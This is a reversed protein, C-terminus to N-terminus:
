KKGLHRDLFRMVRENPFLGHGATPDVFFEVQVGRDLLRYGLDIVSEMHGQPDAEGITFLTPARWTEIRPSSSVALDEIATRESLPIFETPPSGTGDKKMEIVWDAVGSMHVGVAYDNPLRSLALGVIHGGYSHGIIGIRKPDVDPRGKLYRALAALDKVESGGTAGRGAPLRYELGFGSCGRYNIELFIYGRSVAYQGLPTYAGYGYGPMVRGEPGGKSSVIVPYGGTPAPGSPKMLLHYSVVGDDATVPVVEVAAFQRWLPELKAAEDPRPRLTVPRGPSAEVVVRNPMRGGDNSQYVLHGGATIRLDQEVGDGRTLQTPQGGGLSVRWLHLRAPDGVNSEYVLSEGHPSLVARSVEGNEQTLRRVAGGSAPVSYLALWGTKEWNFVLQDRPTWILFPRYAVSGRGRDAQWRTELRGTAVDATVISWPVGQERPAFRYRRPLNIPQRVFALRAGDTSWVPAVDRFIGPEIFRFERTAFDYVGVYSHYTRRLSIFALKSGDPSYVASEVDITADHRRDPELLPRRDFGPGGAKFRHLYLQKGEMTVFSRGDPAFIWTSAPIEKGRAVEEPATREVDVKWLAASDGTGRVYYLTRGDSSGFLRSITVSDAHNTVPRVEFSPELAALLQAGQRWAVYRGRANTLMLAGGFMSGHADISAALSLTDAPRDPVRTQATVSWGPILGAAGAVLAGAARISIGDM